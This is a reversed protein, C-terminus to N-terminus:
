GCDNSLMVHGLLWVFWIDLMNEDQQLEILMKYGLATESSENNEVLRNDTFKFDGLVQRWTFDGM